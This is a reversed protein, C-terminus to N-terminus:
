KSVSHLVTNKNVKAGAANSITKAATRGTILLSVLSAIVSKPVLLCCHIFYIKSM